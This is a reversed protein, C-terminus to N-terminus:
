RQRKALRALRERVAQRVWEVFTVGDDTSAETVDDALEQTFGVTKIVQNSRNPARATM